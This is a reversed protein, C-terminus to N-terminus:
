WRRGEKHGTKTTGRAVRRFFLPLNMGKHGKGAPAPRSPKAKPMTKNTVAM